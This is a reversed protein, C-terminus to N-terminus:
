FYLGYRFGLRRCEAITYFPTDRTSIDHTLKYIVYTGNLSPNLKSNITIRGGLRSHPDFLYKVRIGQETPEPIGVMGTEESLTRESSGLPANRDKVVLREDDVFVDVGGTDSLANVSKDASGAYHYNSVNKDSAQFDLPYGMAGATQKAIDSLSAVSPMGFSVMSSKLAWATKCKLTLIIDPPQSITSEVIDGTYIKTAGFSQRGAEIVCRPFKRHRNYPSTETVLYDRAERSLNAIQIQAENQLPNAFKVVRCTAWLGEYTRLKGNVELGIKIIRPDLAPM